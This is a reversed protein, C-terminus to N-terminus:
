TREFRRFGAAIHNAKINRGQWQFLLDFKGPCEGIEGLQDLQKVFVSHGKDRDGLWV